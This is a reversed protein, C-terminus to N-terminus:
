SYCRMYSVYLSNESISTEFHTKKRPQSYISRKTCWASYTGQLDILKFKLILLEGQDSLLENRGLCIYQHRTPTTTHYLCILVVTAIYSSCIDKELIHELVIDNHTNTSTNSYSWECGDQFRHPLCWTQSIFINHEKGAPFDTFQSQPQNFFTLRLDCNKLMCVLGLWYIVLYIYKEGERLDSTSGSCIKNGEQKHVLKELNWALEKCFSEVSISRADSLIEIM